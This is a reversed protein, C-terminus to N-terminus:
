ETSQSSSENKVDRRIKWRIGNVFYAYSPPYAIKVDDLHGRNFYSFDVMIRVAQNFQSYSRYKETPITRDINGKIDEEAMDILDAIVSEDGDVSMYKQMDDTSVGKEAM